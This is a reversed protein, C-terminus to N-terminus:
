RSWEQFPVHSVIAGSSRLLEAIWEDSRASRSSHPGLFTYTVHKRLGARELLSTMAKHRRYPKAVYVWHLTDISPWRAFALWGIARGPVPGDVALRQTDHRCLADRLVPVHLAKYDRWSKRRMGPADHYGQSWSHIAYPLEDDRMPRVSPVFAPPPVVTYTADRRMPIRHITV